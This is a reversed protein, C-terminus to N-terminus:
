ASSRQATDPLIEIHGKWGFQPRFALCTGEIDQLPGTYASENSRCRVQEYSVANLPYRHECLAQHLTPIKRYDFGM